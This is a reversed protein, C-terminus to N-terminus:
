RLSDLAKQEDDFAEFVTLLKTMQLLDKARATLKLLRIDGEKNRVTTYCTILEGLGSSDIHSVDGLNFVFKLSGSDVAARVASRLSQVGEGGTLRGSMDVVVVAGVKRTKLSFAM